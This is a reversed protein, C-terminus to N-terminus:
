IHKGLFANADALGSYKVKKFLLGSKKEIVTRWIASVTVNVM